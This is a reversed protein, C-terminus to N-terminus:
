SLGWHYVLGLLLGLIVCLSHTGFLVVLTAFPVRRANLSSREAPLEPLMDRDWWWNEELEEILNQQRSAGSFAFRLTEEAGEGVWKKFIDRNVWECSNPALDDLSGDRKEDWGLKEAERRYWKHIGAKTVNPYFVGGNAAKEREELRMIFRVAVGLRTTIATAGPRYSGDVAEDRLEDLSIPASLGETMGTLVVQVKIEFVELPTRQFMNDQSLAIFIARYLPRVAFTLRWISDLVYDLAKLPWPEARLPGHIVSEDKEDDPSAVTNSWIDLRRQAQEYINCHFAVLKEPSFEAEALNTNYKVDFIECFYHLLTLDSEYPKFWQRWLWSEIDPFGCHPYSRQRKDFIYLAMSKNMCLQINKLFNLTSGLHDLTEYPVNRLHSARRRCNSEASGRMQLLMKDRPTISPDQLIDNLSSKLLAAQQEERHSHAKAMAQQQDLTRLSM